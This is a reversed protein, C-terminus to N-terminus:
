ERPPHSPLLRRGGFLALAKGGPERLLVTPYAPGQIGTSLCAGVVPLSLRKGRSGSSYRQTPLVKYGPLPRAPPTLPLAERRGGSGSGCRGERERRMLVLPPYTPVPTPPPTAPLQYRVYGYGSFPDVSATSRM